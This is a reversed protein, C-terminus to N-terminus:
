RTPKVAGLYLAIAELAVAIHNLAELQRDALHPDAIEGDGHCRPCDHEEFDWTGNPVRVSRGVIGTGSCGPCNIM